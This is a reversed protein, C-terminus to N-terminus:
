LLWSSYCISFLSNFEKIEGIVKKLSNLEDNTPLQSKLEILNPLTSRKEYFDKVKNFILKRHKCSFYEDKVISSVLSLYQADSLCKYIFVSEFEDLNLKSM